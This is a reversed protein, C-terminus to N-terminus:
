LAVPMTATFSPRKAFGEFWAALKPGRKRWDEDPFRFDLYGLACAVAIQGINLTGALSAMDHELADVGGRVKTMQGATWDKWQLEPPRQALEYRALIGADAMGNGLAHVRLVKWRAGGLPPILKAGPHLSDLYDCIVLSDYLREGSDTILTPFKVLPNERALDPNPNAPTSAIDVIEIRVALGTEIAFIRVKRAFPSAPNSILKM